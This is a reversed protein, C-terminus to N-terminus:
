SWTNMWSYELIETLASWKAILFLVEIVEASPLQMCLIVYSPPRDGFGGQINLSLKKWLRKLAPFCATTCWFCGCGPSSNLGEPYFHINQSNFNRRVYNKSIAILSWKGWILKSPQHMKLIKLTRKPTTLVSKRDIMLDVLGAKNCVCITVYLEPVFINGFGWFFTAAVEAGFFGEKRAICWNFFLWNSAGWSKPKTAVM